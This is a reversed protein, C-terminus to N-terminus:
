HSFVATKAADLVVAPDLPRKVGCTQNTCRRFFFKSDYLVTLELLQSFSPQSRSICPGWKRTAVRLHDLNNRIPEAHPLRPNRVMWSREWPIASTWASMKEFAFKLKLFATAGTQRLRRESQISARYRGPPRADKIYSEGDLHYPIEVMKCWYSVTKGHPNSLRHLQDRCGNRAGGDQSVPLVLIAVADVENRDRNRIRSSKESTQISSVAMRKRMMAQMATCDDYDARTQKRWQRMKKSAVQM